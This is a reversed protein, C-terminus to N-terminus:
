FKDSGAGLKKEWQDGTHALVAVVLAMEDAELRDLIMNHGFMLIRKDGDDLIQFAGIKFTGNEKLLGDAVNSPLGGGPLEAVPTSIRVVPHGALDGAPMMHVMQTRGDEYGFLCQVYTETKTVVKLKAKAALKEITGSFSM